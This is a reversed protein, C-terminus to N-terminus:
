KTPSSQGFTKLSLILQDGPLLYLAKETSMPTVKIKQTFQLVLKKQGEYHLTKIAVYHYNIGYLFTYLLGIM